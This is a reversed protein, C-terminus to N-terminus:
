IEPIAGPECIWMENFPHALLKLGASRLIAAMGSENPIFWNTPDGAYRKEIFYMCPFGPQEFMERDSIPADPPIEPQEPVGRIMSQFVLRKGVLRVVKDLGYIPYRLHYFVGMFFVYDFTGQLSDLEYVDMRRFEIPLGAVEAAFRAQELYREDHDVGLVKAGRRTLRQSYFGANCGIDLVTMGRMDAPLHPEVHGWIPELFDGLPHDPATQVGGVDLNHFWPGLERVRREIGARDYGSTAQVVSNSLTREGEM